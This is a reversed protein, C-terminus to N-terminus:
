TGPQVNQQRIEMLMVTPWNEKDRDARVQGALYEGVKASLGRVHVQRILMGHFYDPKPDLNAQQLKARSLHFTTGNQTKVSYSKRAM